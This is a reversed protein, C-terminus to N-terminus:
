HCGDLCRARDTACVRQCALDRAVCRTECAQVARDCAPECGTPLGADIPHDPAARPPPASTGEDLAGGMGPLPALTEGVTLAEVRALAFDVKSAPQHRTHHALWTSWCVERDVDAARVEFDTGYCREFQRDGDAVLRHSPLCAALLLASCLLTARRM